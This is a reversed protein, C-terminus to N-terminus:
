FKSDGQPLISSLQPALYQDRAKQKQFRFPIVAWTYKVSFLLSM